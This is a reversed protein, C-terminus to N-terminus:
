STATDSEVISGKGGGGGDKAAPSNARAIALFFSNAYADGTWMNVFTSWKNSVCEHTEQVVGLTTVGLGHNSEQKKHHNEEGWLRFTWHVVAFTAANTPFARIITSNLGRFLCSIGEDRISKKLCDISGLYRQQLDAQVRSKIVDIPYTFVWSATGALGGAILMTITSISEPTASESRTLAEYTFFYIGYSPAERLATIGLGRFVGALGSHRYIHKLCELPGGYSSRQSSGQSQLQMRTKTLELPAAVPSQVLGAAAGALFHTSLDDPRSSHRQAEGYAGFILANIFAVGAMPSTMGRYLGTISETALISRFCHWTGRFRPNRSDQTQIHVKITDLPYGVVLGACGGLCGATFDLAM